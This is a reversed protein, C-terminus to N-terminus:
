RSALAARVFDLRDNGFYMEGNVFLTPAGFAGRSVAEDTNAQLEAKISDEACQQLSQEPDLGARTVLDLLVADDSLDRGHVWIADFMPQHLAEFRGARKAVLALRLAKLTNQPFLPNMRFPVQYHDAWRQLDRVLYNGRAQVQMPPTNGTAKLVGGLLMPRYVIEDAGLTALQSNALYSYSSVYDFFFEVRKSM